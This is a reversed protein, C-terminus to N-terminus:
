CLFSSSLACTAVSSGSSSTSASAAPVISTSPITSSSASTPGIIGKVRVVQSSAKSCCCPIGKGWFLLVLNPTSSFSRSADLSYVLLLLSPINPLSSIIAIIILLLSLLLWSLLLLSNAVLHISSVVSM